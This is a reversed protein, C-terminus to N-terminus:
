KVLMIRRMLRLNQPGELVVFYMGSAYQQFDLLITRYGADYWAPERAFVEQGLVNMVRLTVESRVPIAMTVNVSPNFPNPYVDRIGFETPLDTQRWSDYASVPITFSWTQESVTKRHAIDEAIVHWWYTGPGSEMLNLSATTDLLVQFSSDTFEENDSYVFYYLLTNGEDPDSSSMWRFALITDAAEYGSDPTVLSFPEPPYEVDVDFSWGEFPRCWRGISNTDQARVRWWVSVSDPLEDLESTPTANQEQSEALLATRNERGTVSPQGTDSRDTGRLVLDSRVRHESDDPLSEVSRDESAFTYFTDVIGTLSDVTEWADLSWYLTYTLSDNFDTDEAPNWTLTPAAIDVTATNSPSRLLFPEPREPQSLGFTFFGNEGAAAWATDDGSVARVTWRWYMDDLGEPDFVFGAVDIQTVVDFELPDSIDLDTTMLLDYVVGEGPDNDLSPTWALPVPGSQNFLMDDTPFSLAFVGPFDPISVSVQWSESSAARLGTLDVADVYWDVTVEDTLDDLGDNVNEYSEYLARYLAERFGQSGPLSGMVQDTFSYFTDPIAFVTDMTEFGDLSWILDYMIIDGYDPDESSYWRFEPNLTEVTVGNEPSALQFASPPDPTEAVARWTELSWVSNGDVDCSRVKWYVTDGEVVSVPLVQPEYPLTYRDRNENRSYGTNTGTILSQYSEGTNPNLESRENAPIRFSNMRNSQLLASEVTQNRDQSPLGSSLTTRGLTVNEFELIVSPEELDVLSDAGEFEANDAWVFTYYVTEADPDLSPQWVFPYGEWATGNDSPELLHFVSPLDGAPQVTVIFPETVSYQGDSATCEVQYEGSAEFPPIWSLRISHSDLREVRINEPSGPLDETEIYFEIYDADDEASIVTSTETGAPIEVTAPDLTVDPPTNGLWGYMRDPLYVITQVSNISPGDFLESEAFYMNPEPELGNFVRIYGQVGEPIPPEESDFTSHLVFIGEENGTEISPRSIWEGSLFDDGGPMGYEGTELSPPDIGDGETDVIFHVLFSDPLVVSNEDVAYTTSGSPDLNSLIWPVPVAGLQAPILLFLLLNVTILVFDSKSSALSSRRMKQKTVRNTIDWM